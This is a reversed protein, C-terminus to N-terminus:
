CPEESPVQGHTVSPLAQWAMRGLTRLVEVLTWGEQVEIQWVAPSEGWRVLFAGMLDSAEWSHGHMAGTTDDHYQWWATWRRMAPLWESHDAAPRVGYRECLAQDHAHALRFIAQLEATTSPFDVLHRATLM